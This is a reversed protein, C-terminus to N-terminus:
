TSRPVPRAHSPRRSCAISSTANGPTPRCGGPRPTRIRSCGTPRSSALEYRITSPGCDLGPDAALAKSAVPQGTAAYSEVVKRLITEQRATLTRNPDHEPLNLNSDVM